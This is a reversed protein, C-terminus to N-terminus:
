FSIFPDSKSLCEGDSIKLEKASYAQGFSLTDILMVPRNLQEDNLKNLKDRLQRCNMTEDM